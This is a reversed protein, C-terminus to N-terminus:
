PSRYDRTHCHLCERVITGDRYSHGDSWEHDCKAQADEDYIILGCNVCRYKQGEAHSDVYHHRCVEPKEKATEEEPMDQRCMPCVTKIDAIATIDLYAPFIKITARVADGVPMRIECDFVGKLENGTEIDIFKVRGPTCGDTPETIIRVNM